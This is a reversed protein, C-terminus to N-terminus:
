TGRPVRATRAGFKSLAYLERCVPVFEPKAQPYMTWLINPVNRFRQAIWRAYTRANAPTIRVTQLQHFVGLVLFMEQRRALEIM